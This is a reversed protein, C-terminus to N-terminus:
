AKRSTKLWGGDIRSCPANTTVDPSFAGSPVMTDHKATSRSVIWIITSNASPEVVICRRRSPDFLRPLM